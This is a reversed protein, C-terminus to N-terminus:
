RRRRAYIGGCVTPNGASFTSQGTLYITTTGSLIFRQQPVPAGQNGPFAATSQSIYTLSADPLTASTQSIWGLVATYTSGADIFYINGWLDWDGATLSISTVNQATMTTTVTIASGSSIVSSIFEGVYGAPANNNTGTGKAIVGGTGTTNLLLDINSDGGASSIGPASGTASNFINVHNGASPTVTFSVLPRSNIDYIIDGGAYSILPTPINLSAPLTTSLSPVGGSSTVLVSSNATALLQLQSATCYVLSDASATLDANTGGQALSLPLTLSGQYGPITLGSPLTTSISPVGTPSTVLVGNDATPLGNVATGNSTYWALENQLGANVTGSGQTAVWKAWNIATTGVTIPSMFTDQWFTGGNIAGYQVFVIGNQFINSPQNFNISRTLVWNVSISDGVTTLTYLGNQAPATQNKVLYTGGLIGIIGDISFAGLVGSNTLTAGVGSLGNNYNATINATTAALVPSYVIFGLQTIIYNFLEIIQYPKTTGQPSQTVDTIDVAPYVDTPKVTGYLGGNLSTINTIITPFFYSPNFSM